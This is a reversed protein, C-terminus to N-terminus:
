LRDLPLLAQKGCPPNLLPASCLARVTGSGTATCTGQKRKPTMYSILMKALANQVGEAKLRGRGGKM